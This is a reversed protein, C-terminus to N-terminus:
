STSCKWPLSPTTPELGVSPEAFAGYIPAKETLPTYAAAPRPCLVSVEPLVNELRAAHIQEEAPRHDGGDLEDFLHAYTSLTMTPAHGAQRAVEIVTAGQAILLSIYSHRLDYPRAQPVGAETAADAFARKRWNRARDANWPSGDPSPFILDTDAKHDSHERWASLDDKLPQLLRV